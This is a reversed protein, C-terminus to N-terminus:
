RCGHPLRTPPGPLWQRAACRLAAHGVQRAPRGLDVAQIVILEALEDAGTTHLPGEGPMHGTRWAARLAPYWRLCQRTGSLKGAQAGAQKPQGGTSDTPPPGHAGTTSTRAIMGKQTAMDKRGRSGPEDGPQPKGKGGGRREKSPMRHTEPPSGLVSRPALTRRCWARM